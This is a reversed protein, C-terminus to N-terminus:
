EAGLFGLDKRKKAAAAGAEEATFFRGVCIHQGGHTVEARFHKKGAIWSVGRFGTTNNSNLVGRHEVNQKDTVVRLNERRNDLRDHNIHDVREGRVITRGIKRELVVRHAYRSRDGNVGYGESHLSWSLQDLDADMEDVIMYGRIPGGRLHGGLQIRIM